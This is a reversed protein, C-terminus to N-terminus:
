EYLESTILQKFIDLDLQFLNNNLREKNVGKVIFDAIELRDNALLNSLYKQQKCNDIYQDLNELISNKNNFVLNLNKIRNEFIERDHSNAFARSPLNDIYKFLARLMLAVAQGHPISFRYSIGYSLAHAATTKSLNIAKGALNAGLLVNGLAAKDKNEVANQCNAMLLEIAQKAYEMSQKSAGKSWYSEIAQCLADLLSPGLVSIPAQEIFQPALLFLEPLLDQHAVSYKAGDIYIVAFHTSESGSGATTPLLVLPIQIATITQATAIKQALDNQNGAYAKILKAMDMSSGGGLGIIIDPQIEDFFDLAQVLELVCINNSFETFYYCKYKQELQAFDEKAGSKVFSTKGCIILAKETEKDSLFSDLQKLYNPSLQSM